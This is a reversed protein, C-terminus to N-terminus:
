GKQYRHPVFPLAVTKAPLANGRVMLFVDTGPAVYASEAYGMGIPGDVSPGFGGSSVVGIKRGEADVIDTNERALARGEPRLGIRKRAVGKALQEQIAAAGM